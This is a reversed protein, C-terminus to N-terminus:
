RSYMTVFNSFWKKKIEFTFQSVLLLINKKCSYANEETYNKSSYIYTINSQHKSLRYWFKISINM